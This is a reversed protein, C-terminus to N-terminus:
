GIEITGVAPWVLRRSDKKAAIIACDIAIKRHDDGRWWRQGAVVVVVAVDVRRVVGDPAVVHSVGSVRELVAVRSVARADDARPDHTTGAVHQVLLATVSPSLSHDGSAVDHVAAVLRDPPTDKLLFGRAGARLAEVVLDDDDFTTLVLVRLAPWRRLLERTAAIGDVRAMRIDMLVVDPRLRTVLDVAADGDDAEGVVEVGGPGGLILRLGTRVLADDDVIVVRPRAPAGAGTPDDAGAPGSGGTPASTGADARSM